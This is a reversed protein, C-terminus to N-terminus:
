DKYEKFLKEMDSKLLTYIWNRIVCFKDVKETNIRDITQVRHHYYDVFLINDLSFPRLISVGDEYFAEDLSKNDYYFKINGSRSPRYGFRGWKLIDTDRMYFFYEHPCNKFFSFENKLTPFNDEVFARYCSELHKFFSEVYLKAQNSTYQFIRVQNLNQGRDKEYFEKTELISKDPYPLHHKEIKDFGKELLTNVMKFLEEFPPFDGITTLKPIELNLKLAKEIKEEVLHLPLGKRYTYHYSARFKYIRDRLDKLDIPYILEFRPLYYDDLKLDYGLKKHYYYLILSIQERLLIDSNYTTLRGKQIIEKLQKFLNKKIIKNQDSVLLSRNSGYVTNVGMKLFDSRDLDSFPDKLDKLQVKKSNPELHFLAYGDKNILDNPLIIGIEGDTGPDFLKKFNKFNEDLFLNYNTVYQVAKNEKFRALTFRHSLSANEIYFNIASQGIYNQYFKELIDYFETDNLKNLTYSHFCIIYDRIKSYYFSINYSDEKNSKILINRSFLDEPLNDTVSFKLKRLLSNVDLGEDKFAELSTYDYNLLIKGIESLISLGKEVGLSLETKELSQRIYIKILDKDNIKDPIQKHSYVESFIRLFFGNRLEKLLEKSINGKFGFVSKYIPIISEMEKDTFDELLFGVKGFPKNTIEPFKNLEEYLHSPTGNIKLINDWINLKCSICLKINSLNRCALALESLELSINPNISEDIADIFLLVQKNVFRGLEDLKKLVLDSDSRSSFVGNLDQAIHELPSKNIISANYFFVFKNELNQLALSCIVNTKGVGASGVVSFIKANSNLFRNFAFFLDERQCYLEKVFKSTPTNIAGIIPGMRDQVQNECFLKLNESSFSVFKKLAEYRIRLEEDTSLTYGNKWFSSQESIKQGTLDIRSISDFIRTIHGNSIITFPAIDDLLSRAYSIGQDIDNQTISITDNKLEIIFLNRGNGKCLIDSRGKITHQSKGLRITFSKELSIESVNFGLDNLFPLLLKGRIEEENM